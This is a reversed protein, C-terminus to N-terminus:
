TTSKSLTPLSENMESLGLLEGSLPEPPPLRPPEDDPAPTPEPEVEVVAGGGDVPPPPAM